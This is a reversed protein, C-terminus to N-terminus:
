ESILEKAFRKDRCNRCALAHKPKQKQKNKWYNLFIRLLLCAVRTWVVVDQESFKFTLSKQIEGWHLGVGEGTGGDGQTDAAPGRVVTASAAGWVKVAPAMLPAPGARVSVGTEETDQETRSLRKMDWCCTEKVGLRRTSSPEPKINLVTELPRVFCTEMNQERDHRNLATKVPLSTSIKIQVASQCFPLM